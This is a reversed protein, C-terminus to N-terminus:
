IIRWGRFSQRWGRLSHRLIMGTPIQAAILADLVLTDRQLVGADTLALGGLLETAIVLVASVLPLPIHQSAMFGATGDVGMVLLKQAGHAVFVVGVIARILAIGISSSRDM